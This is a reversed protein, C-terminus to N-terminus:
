ARSRLREQRLLHDMFRNELVQEREDILQQYSEIMSSSMMNLYSEDKQITDDSLGPTVHLCVQIVTKSPSQDNGSPCPRIAIWGKERVPASSPHESTVDKPWEGTGAWVGIVRDEEVIRRFMCRLLVPVGDETSRDHRLFYQRKGYIIESM